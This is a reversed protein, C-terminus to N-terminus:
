DQPPQGQKSPPQPTTQPPQAPIANLGFKERIEQGTAIPCGHRQTNHQFMDCYDHAEAIEACERATQQRIEDMALRHDNVVSMLREVEAVLQGVETDPGWREKQQDISYTM